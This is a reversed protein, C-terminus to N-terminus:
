ATKSKNKLLLAKELILQVIDNVTMENTQTLHMDPMLPLEPSIDVGVVDKLEGLEARHYINKNDRRKLETMEVDLYIEFYGSINKRNWAQVEHFLSITSCVVNVGQSVLYQCFRSYRKALILRAAKDHKSCGENILERFVDGDVLVSPLGNSRLREILHQAVTTKGAGSLGTIWFVKQTMNDSM